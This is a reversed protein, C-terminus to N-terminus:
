QNNENNRFPFHSEEEFADYGEYPLTMEEESRYNKEKGNEIKSMTILTDLDDEM